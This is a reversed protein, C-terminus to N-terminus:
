LAPVVYSWVARGSDTTPNAELEARNRAEVIRRAATLGTVTQVRRPPQDPLHLDIGYVTAANLAEVNADFLAALHARAHVEDDHTQARRAATHLNSAYVSLALPLRATDARVVDAPPLAPVTGSKIHEAAAQEADSFREMCANLPERFTYDSVLEGPGNGLVILLALSAPETPRKVSLCAPHQVYLACDYDVGLIQAAYEAPTGVDAREDGGDDLGALTFGHGALHAFLRAVEAAQPHTTNTTTATSM